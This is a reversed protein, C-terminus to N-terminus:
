KPLVLYLGEQSKAPKLYPFCTKLMLNERNATNEPSVPAGPCVLADWFLGSDWITVCPKRDVSIHTLCPFVDETM